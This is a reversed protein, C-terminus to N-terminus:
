LASGVAMPPTAPRPSGLMLMETPKLELGAAKAAAADDVNLTAGKEKWTATLRDVTEKVSYKRPKTTL